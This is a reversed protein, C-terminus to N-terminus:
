RQSSEVVRYLEGLHQPFKGEIKKLIGQSALEDFVERIVYDTFGYNGPSRYRAIEGWHVYVHSIKNKALAARREQPSRNKMWREFSNPDFCTSYLVPVELDFPQGDGVLLVRNGNTVTKNLYLHVPNVREPDIRLRDLAVFYRNDSLIPSAILLFNGLLGCGLIVILLRQWLRTTNWAAGVGALLAALPLAPIWFRDIRHTLLWCVLVIYALLAALALAARRHRPSCFALGALPVLLPSLWESQWLVTVLMRVLPRPGYRSGHEDRPVRHAARWQRNLAATRTKSPFVEGLLPYTPNGALVANKGFWLGCGLIVALLFVGAPQWGWRREAFLIWAALPVPVLLLAPYKCAAAGGALFGALLLLGHRSPHDDDAAKAKSRRSSWLMVAYVALLLYFAVAGEILGAMSVKAMWPISVYVLAAVVGATISFFRRGAALLALATLPMLAAIVTKGALAGWWWAREGQLLVMALLAHM